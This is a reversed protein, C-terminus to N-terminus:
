ESYSTGTCNSDNMRNPDSDGNECQHNPAFSPTNADTGSDCLVIFKGSLEWLGGLPKAEFEDFDITYTEGYAGTFTFRPDEQNYADSVVKAHSPTTTMSWKIGEENFTFQQYSRQTYTGRITQFRKNKKKPVFPTYNFSPDLTITSGGASPTITSLIM